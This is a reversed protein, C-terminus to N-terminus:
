VSFVRLDYVKAGTPLTTEFVRMGQPIQLRVDAPDAHTAAVAADCFEQLEALNTITRGEIIM